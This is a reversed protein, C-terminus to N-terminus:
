SSDSGQAGRIHNGDVGHVASSSIDEGAFLDRSGIFGSHEGGHGIGGCFETGAKAFRQNRDLFQGSGICIHSGSGQLGKVCEGEAFVLVAHAAIKGLRRGEIFLSDTEVWIEGHSIRPQADHVSILAGGGLGQLIQSFGVVQPLADSLAFAHIDFRLIRQLM